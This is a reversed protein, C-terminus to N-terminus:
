AFVAVSISGPPIETLGADVITITPQRGPLARVPDDAGTVYLRADAAWADRTDPSAQLFWALCGHAAQACLKGTSAGLAENIVLLPATTGAHEDLADWGRRPLETGSVQLKRLPTAMDDYTVPAFALAAAEDSVAEAAATDRLADFQAPKARRVTKTFRGSLWLDWAPDDPTNYYALTSARAVALLADEHTGSRRLAIPQVLETTERLM